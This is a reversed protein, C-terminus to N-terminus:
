KREIPPRNLGSISLEYEQLYEIQTQNPNTVSRKNKMLALADELSMGILMLYAIALTPARGAGSSCHVYVKRQQRIMTDIFDAGIRLNVPSPGFWDPTPLWLYVEPAAGPFRDQGEVMLNIDVTVGLASMIQWDGPNFRGGVYLSETIQDFDM